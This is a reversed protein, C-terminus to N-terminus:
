SRVEGKRGETELVWAGKAGEMRVGVSVGSRGPVVTVAVGLSVYDVECVREGDEEEAEGVEVEWGVSRVEVGPLLLKGARLPM